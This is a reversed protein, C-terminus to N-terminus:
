QSRQISKNNTAFRIIRGTAIDNKLSSRLVLHIAKLQRLSVIKKISITTLKLVPSYGWGAGGEGRESYYIDTFVWPYCWIFVLSIQFFQLNINSVRFKLGGDEWGGYEVGKWSNHLLVVGFLDYQIGLKYGFM